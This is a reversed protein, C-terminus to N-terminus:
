ASLEMSDFKILAAPTQNKLQIAQPFTIKRAISRGSRTIVNFRSQTKKSVPNTLKQTRNRMATEGPNSKLGGKILAFDNSASQILNASDDLFSWSSLQRFCGVMFSKIPLLGKNINKSPCLFVVTSLPTKDGPCFPTCIGVSSHTLPAHIIIHSQTATLLM